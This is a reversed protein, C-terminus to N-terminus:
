ATAATVPVNAAGAPRRAALYSYLQWRAEADYQAKEFFRKSDEPKSKTLMKFRNESMMFDAVKM